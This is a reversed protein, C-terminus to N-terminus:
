TIHLEDAMYHHARVKSANKCIVEMCRAVLAEENVAMASELMAAVNEVRLSAQIYEGCMACLPRVQLFDALRMVELSTDVTLQALGSHLYGLICRFADASVSGTCIDIHEDIHVEDGM